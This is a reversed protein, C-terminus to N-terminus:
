SRQTKFAAAPRQAIPSRSKIKLNPGGIIADKHHSMLPRQALLTWPPATFSLVLFCWFTSNQARSM